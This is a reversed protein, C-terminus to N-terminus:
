MFPIMNRIMAVIKLILNILPILVRHYVFIIIRIHNDVWTGVIDPYSRHTLAPIICIIELLMLAYWWDNIILNIFTFSFDIVYQILVAPLYLINYLSQGVFPIKKITNLLAGTLGGLKLKMSSTDLVLNGSEDYTTEITRLTMSITPYHAATYIYQDDCDMETFAITQDQVTDRGFLVTRDITDFAFGGSRGLGGYFTSNYNAVELGNISLTRTAIQKLGWYASSLNQTITYIQEQYGTQNHAYRMLYDLSYEDGSHIKIKAYRCVCDECQVLSIPTDHYSSYTFSSTNYATITDNEVEYLASVSGTSALLVVIGIILKKIM